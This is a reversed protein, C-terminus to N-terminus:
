KFELVAGDMTSPPGSTQRARLSSGESQFGFCFRQSARVGTWNWCLQDAEISWVGVDQLNASCPRSAGTRDYTTCRFIISGDGRVLVRFIAHGGDTRETLSPTGPDRPDRTFTKTTRFEFVKDALAAKIQVGTLKASAQAYGPSVLSVSLALGALVAAAAMAMRTRIPM